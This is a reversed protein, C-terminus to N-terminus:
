VLLRVLPIIADLHHVLHASAIIVRYPVPCALIFCPDRSPLFPDRLLVSSPRRIVFIARYSM